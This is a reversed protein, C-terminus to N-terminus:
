RGGAAAPAAKCGTLSLLAFIRATSQSELPDGPDHCSEAPLPPVQGRANEQVFLANEELVLRSDRVPYHRKRVSNCVNGGITVVHTANVEVVVDGHSTLHVDMSPGLKTVATRKIGTRRDLVIIDGAVPAFAGPEFAHYTGLTGARARDYAAQTYDVHRISAKLPEDGTAEVGKVIAAGRVVASVFAASWARSSGKDLHAERANTLATDVWGKLAAPPSAVSALMLGRLRAAEAAIDAPTTKAVLDAYSLPKAAAHLDRIRDAGIRPEASLYYAALLWFLALDNELRPVGATTHWATWQDRAVQAIDNRLEPLSRKAGSPGVFECAPPPDEAPPEPPPASTPVILPPRPLPLALAETFRRPPVRRGVLSAFFADAARREARSVPGFGDDDRRM